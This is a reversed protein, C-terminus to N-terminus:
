EKKMLRKELEGTKYMLLLRVISIKEKTIYNLISVTTIAPYLSNINHIIYKLADGLETSTFLSPTVDSLVDSLRHTITNKDINDIRIANQLLTNMIVSEDSHTKKRHLKAVSESISVVEETIMSLITDASEHHIVIPKEITKISSNFIKWGMFLVICMGLFFVIEICM